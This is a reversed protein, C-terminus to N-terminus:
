EDDWAEGGIQIPSGAIRLHKHWEADALAKAIPSCPVTSKRITYPAAWMERLVDCAAERASLYTLKKPHVEMWFVGQEWGLEKAAAEFADGVLEMHQFATEVALLQM